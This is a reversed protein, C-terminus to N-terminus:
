TDQGYLCSSAHVQSYAGSHAMYNLFYAAVDAQSRHALHVPACAFVDPALFRKSPGTHQELYRSFGEVDSFPMDVCRVEAKHADWPAKLCPPMAGYLQTSDAVWNSRGGYGGLGNRYALEVVTVFQAHDWELVVVSPYTLRDLSSESEKAYRHAAHCARTLRGAGAERGPLDSWGGLAMARLMRSGHHVAMEGDRTLTCRHM